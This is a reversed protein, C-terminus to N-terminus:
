AYRWGFVGFYAVIAPLAIVVVIGVGVWQVWSPVSFNAQGGGRRQNARKAKNRTGGFKEQAAKKRMGSRYAADDYPLGRDHNSIAEEEQKSLTLGRNGNPM